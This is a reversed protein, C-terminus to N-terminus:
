SSNEPRLWRALVFALILGPILAAFGARLSLLEALGGMLPPGLLFGTLALMALVAINSSEFRDDMAAVASVGLPYAVAVGFGVLAFGPYLAWNPLPLVLLMLGALAVVALTQSLAVPGFRRKLADGLFRGGAMFGSFITVAIGARATEGGIREALYVASWDAMAGETLTVLLMMAGVLWLAKPVDGLRRKPMDLDVSNDAIRPLAWGVVAGLPIFVIILWVLVWALGGLVAVVASGFMLGLAWFGHCRSMITLSARKELRAAYVNMAVEPVSVMAGALALALFLTVVDVAVLPLAMALGFLPFGLVLMRRPGWRGVIRGAVQLSPILALPMGFLAFALEGKSLGLEEKIVPILALWGGFTVPQLFFVAMILLTARGAM